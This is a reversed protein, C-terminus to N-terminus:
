LFSYLALGALAAWGAPGLAALPGAAAASTGGAAAATTTAAATGTTAAGTTAAIEAAAAVEGATAATAAGEAVAAATGATQTAAATETTAAAIEAAAQTEGIAAADLAAKQAAQQTYYSQLGYDLGVTAATTALGRTEAKDAQDIQKNTIKRQHEEAGAQRFGGRAQGEVDNALNLLGYSSM